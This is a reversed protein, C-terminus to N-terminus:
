LVSETTIAPSIIFFDPTTKETNVIMNNELCWSLLKSMAGNLFVELREKARCKLSTSWIFLDDTYMLVYMNEDILSYLFDDVYAHFLLCSTVAGQPLGTHLTTHMEM